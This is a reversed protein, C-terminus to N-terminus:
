VPPGGSALMQGIINNVQWYKSVCRNICSTEGIYLEPEKYRLLKMTISNLFMLFCFLFDIGKRLVSISVHPLSRRYEMEQGFIQAMDIPNRANTNQVPAAMRALGQAMDIPNRANTNQGPEAMLALGEVPYLKRRKARYLPNCIPNM